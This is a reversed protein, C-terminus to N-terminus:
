KQDFNCTNFGHILSTEQIHTEREAYQTSQVLPCHFAESVTESDFAKQDEKSRKDRAGGEQGFPTMLVM